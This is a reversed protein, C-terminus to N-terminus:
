KLVISIDNSHNHPQKCINWPGYTQYFDDQLLSLNQGWPYTDKMFYKNCLSLGDMLELKLFMQRVKKIFAFIHVIFTFEKM